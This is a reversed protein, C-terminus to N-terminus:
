IMNYKTELNIKGKRNESKLRSAVTFVSSIVPKFCNNVRLVDFFDCLFLLSWPIIWFFDADPLRISGKTINSLFHGKQWVYYQKLANRPLFEYFTGKKLNWVSGQFELNFSVSSQVKLM